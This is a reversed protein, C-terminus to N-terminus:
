RSVEKTLELLHNLAAQYGSYITMKEKRRTLKAVMRAVSDLLNSNTYLALHMMNSHVFFSNRVGELFNDPLATSMQSVDLPIFSPQKDLDLDQAVMDEDTLRGSIELIKIHRNPGASVKHVM